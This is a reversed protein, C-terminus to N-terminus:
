QLKEWKEFQKLLANIDNDHQTKESGILRKKQAVKQQEELFGNEPILVLKKATPCKMNFDQIM